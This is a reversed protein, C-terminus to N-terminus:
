TPKKALMALYRGAALRGADTLKYSQVGGARSRSTFADIPQDRNLLKARDVTQRLQWSLDRIAAQAKNRGEDESGAVQANVLAEGLSPFPVWDDPAASLLREIVTLKQTNAPAHKLGAEIEMEISGSNIGVGATLHRFDDVARAAIMLEETNEFTMMFRM